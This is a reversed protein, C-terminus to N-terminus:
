VDVETGGRSSRQAARKPLVLTLAVLSLGVLFLTATVVMAVVIRDLDYSTPAIPEDAALSDFRRFFFCGIAAGVLSAIGPLLLALHVGPQLRERAEYELRHQQPNSDM